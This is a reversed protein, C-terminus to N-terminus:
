WVQNYHMFHIELEIIDWLKRSNFDNMVESNTLLNSDYSSSYLHLDHERLGILHKHTYKFVNMYENIM